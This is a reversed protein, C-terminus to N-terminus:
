TLVLGNQISTVASALATATRIGESIKYNAIDSNMKAKIEAIKQAPTDGTRYECSYSNTFGDGNTDSLVLNFTIISIGPQVTSVGAVSVVASLSM